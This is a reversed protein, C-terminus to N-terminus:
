ESNGERWLRDIEYSVRIADFENPDGDPLPSVLGPQLGELINGIARYILGWAVPDDSVIQATFYVGTGNENRIVMSESLFSLNAGRMKVMFHDNM